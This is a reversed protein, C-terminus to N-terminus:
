MGFLINVYNHQNEQDKNYKISFPGDVEGSDTDVKLAIYSYSDDAKATNCVALTGVFIIGVILNLSGFIKRSYIPAKFIEEISKTSSTNTFRNCIKM